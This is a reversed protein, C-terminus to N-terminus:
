FLGSLGWGIRPIWRRRPGQDFPKCHGGDLQRNIERTEKEPVTKARDRSPLHHWIEFGSRGVVAMAEQADSVGRLYVVPRHRQQRLQCGEAVPSLSSTRGPPVVTDSGRCRFEPKQTTVTVEELSMPIRQLLRPIWSVLFDEHYIFAQVM